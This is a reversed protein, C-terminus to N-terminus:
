SDPIMLLKQLSTFSKTLIRFIRIRLEPIPQQIQHVLKPILDRSGYTWKMLLLLLHGKSEHGCGIFINM